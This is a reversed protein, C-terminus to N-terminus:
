DTFGSHFDFLSQKKKKLHKNFLFFFYHWLYNDPLVYLFTAYIETWLHQHKKKKKKKKRHIKNRYSKIWLLTYQIVLLFEFLLDLQLWVHKLKMYSYVFVTGLHKPDRKLLPLLLCKWKSKIAKQPSNKKAISTMWSHSLVSPTVGSWEYVEPIILLIYQYLRISSYASSNASLLAM